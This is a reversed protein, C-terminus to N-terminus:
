FIGNLFEIETQCDLRQQLPIFHIGGQTSASCCQHTVGPPDLECSLSDECDGGGAGEDDDAERQVDARADRHHM